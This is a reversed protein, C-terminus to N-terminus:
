CDYPLNCSHIPLFQSYIVTTLFAPQQQQLLSDKLRMKYNTMTEDTQFANNIAKLMLDIWNRNDPKNAVESLLRRFDDQDCFMLADRELGNAKM